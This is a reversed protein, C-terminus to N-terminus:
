FGLHSVNTYKNAMYDIVEAVPPQDEYYGRLKPWEMGTALALGLCAYWDRFWVEQDVAKGFAQCLDADVQLLDNGGFVVGTNKDELKLYAAM